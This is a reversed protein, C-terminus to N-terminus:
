NKIEVGGMMCFGKLILTHGSQTAPVKRTDEVTGMFAFVQNVVNWDEPVIVDVGGMVVFLEVEAGDPVPKAGKLNLEGGGMVASFDGGRFQQSISKRDVGAWIAVASFTDAEPPGGAEAVREGVAYRGQGTSIVGRLRGWRRSRPSGYLSRWVIASGALIMFVPWLQWLSWPVAGLNNGLLILGIGTWVAGALMRPPAGLGLLRTLGLAVLILPWWRLVPESDLINLNDLTWLVGLALLALGFWLRAGFGGYAGHARLRHM